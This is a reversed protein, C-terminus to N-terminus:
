SLKGQAKLTEIRKKYAEMMKPLNVSVAAKALPGPVWLGFSADVKYTARCKSEGLPELKWSGQLTKFLDGSAFEWSIGSPANETMWLKYSFNKVIQVDYQVLKKSGEQKEVKCSKVDELFESYKNYDTLISFLAEMGCPFEYSLEAQAM